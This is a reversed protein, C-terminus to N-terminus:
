FGLLTRREILYCALAHISVHACESSAYHHRVPRGRQHDTRMVVTGMVVTRMVVVVASALVVIGTSGAGCVRAGVGGM